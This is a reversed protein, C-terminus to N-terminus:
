RGWFSRSRAWAQEGVKLAAKLPCQCGHMPLRLLALRLPGCTPSGQNVPETSHRKCKTCDYPPMTAPHKVTPLAARRRM